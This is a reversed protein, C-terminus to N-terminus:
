LYGSDTYLVLWESSTSVAIPSMTVNLERQTESRRSPSSPTRAGARSSMRNDNLWLQFTVIIFDRSFEGPRYHEEYIVTSTHSGGECERIETRRSWYRPMLRISKNSIGIFLSMRLSNSNISKTRWSTYRLMANSLLISCNNPQREVRLCVPLILLLAAASDLPTNIRTNM